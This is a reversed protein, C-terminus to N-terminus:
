GSDWIQKAPKGEVGLVHELISYCKFILCEIKKYDKEKFFYLNYIVELNNIINCSHVSKLLM